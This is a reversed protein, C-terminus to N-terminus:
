SKRSVERKHPFFVLKLKPCKVVAVLWPFMDCSLFAVKEWPIRRKINVKEGYFLAKELKEYKQSQVTKKSVKM